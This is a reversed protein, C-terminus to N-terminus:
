VQRGFFTEPELARLDIVHEPVNVELADRSSFSEPPLGVVALDIDSDPRFVGPKLISGYLYACTLTSFDALLEPWDECVRALRAQCLQERQAAKQRERTLYGQRYADLQAKELEREGSM